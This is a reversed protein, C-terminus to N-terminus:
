EFGFRTLHLGLRLWFGILHEGVDLLPPVLNLRADLRLRAFGSYLGAFSLVAKFLLDFGIKVDRALLDLLLLGREPVHSGRLCLRPLLRGVLEM